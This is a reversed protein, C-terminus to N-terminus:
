KGKKEHYSACPECMPTLVNVMRVADMVCQRPIKAWHQAHSCKTNKCECRTGPKIQEM